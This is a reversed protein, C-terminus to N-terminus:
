SSSCWWGRLTVEELSVCNKNTICAVSQAKLAPWGLAETWILWVVNVYFVQPQQHDTISLTYSEWWLDGVTGAREVKTYGSLFPASFKNSLPSSGQLIFKAWSNPWFESKTFLLSMVSTDLPPVGRYINATMGEGGGSHGTWGRSHSTRQDGTFYGGGTGTVM